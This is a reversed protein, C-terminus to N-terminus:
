TVCFKRNHGRQMTDFRLEGWCVYSLDKGWHNNQWRLLWVVGATLTKWWFNIIFSLGFRLYKGWLKGINLSVNEIIVWHFRLHNENRILNETKWVSGWRVWIKHISSCRPLSINYFNNIIKFLKNCCGQHIPDHFYVNPTLTNRFSYFFNM